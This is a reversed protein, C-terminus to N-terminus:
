IDTMALFGGGESATVSGATPSIGMRLREVLAAVLAIAGGVLGHQNMQQAKGLMMM